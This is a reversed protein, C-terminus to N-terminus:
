GRPKTNKIIIFQTKLAHIKAKQEIFQAIGTCQFARRKMTTIIGFHLVENQEERATLRLKHVCNM